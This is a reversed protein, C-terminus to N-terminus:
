HGCCHDDHNHSDDGHDHGHDHGHHHHHHHGGGPSLNAIFGRPGLRIVSGLFVLGLTGLALWQWWAEGEHHHHGSMIEPVTDGMILNTGIGFLIALVVVIAGFMISVKKSHMQTLIGFTTVNTAPGALLFAIAAGPSAGAFILAAALPTSGSACVYIPIGIIAFLIVDVHPPLNTIFDLSLGPGFFAAIAIGLVIWPATEDVIEVFGKNFAIKLWHDQEVAEKEEEPERDKIMSGVIVGVLIAVTFAGIVRAVALKPGLLPISLLLADIGLEPTAVMFAMAAPAGVGSKILGKYIPVVGCSCVPVPLGIATGKLAKILNPGRNLWQTPMRQVFVAMLGALFYGILLAPASEIVLHLFTDGYHATNESHNHVHPDFLPISIIVAAGLIVGVIEAWRASPGSDNSDFADHLVVHFLSGAVFTQLGILISDQVYAKFLPAFLFGTVTSISLIVIVIWAGRKGWRPRILWWLGVGVPLRHLIIAISLASSGEVSKAAGMAVGDLWTHIMIALLALLIASHAPIKKFASAKEILNPTFLGAAGIVISIWGLNSIAEPLIHFLVIGTISAFVFGDLITSSWAIRKLVTVLLPGIAMVALAVFLYIEHSM